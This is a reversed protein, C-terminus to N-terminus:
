NADTLSQAPYNLLQLYDLKEGKAALRARPQDAEELTVTGITIGPPFVGGHGSTLITMGQEIQAYLPLYLLLPEADNDGALMAHQGTEKILVPIRSNFDTILLIRAANKGTEVVRGVLGEASMAISNERINQNTGANVILSRVYVGSTDALVRATVIKTAFDPKDDVMAVLARLHQNERELQNVYGLWLRLKQNENQLEAITDQQSAITSVHRMVTSAANVPTKALALLPTAGDLMEQRLKQFLNPELRDALMTLVGAVLLLPLVYKGPGFRTNAFHTRSQVWNLRPHSTPM